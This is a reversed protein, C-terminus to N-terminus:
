VVSEDGHSEAKKSLRPSRRKKRAVVSALAEPHFVTEPINTGNQKKEDKWQRLGVLYSQERRESWKQGRAQAAELMRFVTRETKLLRLRMKGLFWALSFYYLDGYRGHKFFGWVPEVIQKLRSPRTVFSEQILQQPIQILLPIKKWVVSFAYGASGLFVIVLVLDFM